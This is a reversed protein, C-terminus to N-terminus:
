GARHRWLFKAAALSYGGEGFAYAEEHIKVHKLVWAVRAFLGTVAPDVGCVPDGPACVDITRRRVDAPLAFAAGARFTPRIGAALTHGPFDGTVGPAYSPNGFLAVSVSAQETASLADVARTVVEAGQSYGSLLVPRGACGGGYSKRIAAVLATVGLAESVDLDATLGGPGLYHSVPIAPYEVSRASALGKGAITALDTKLRAVTTGYQVADGRAVGAPLLTPPPNLVGQGSGPVGFFVPACTAATHGSGQVTSGCAALTTSVLATCALAAALLRSRM